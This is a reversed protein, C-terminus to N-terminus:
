NLRKLVVRSKHYVSVSVSGCGTCCLCLVTLSIFSSESVSDSVNKEM